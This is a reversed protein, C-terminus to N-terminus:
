VWYTEFPAINVFLNYDWVGGGWDVGRRTRYNSIVGCLIVRIYINPGWSQQLLQQAVICCQHQRLPQIMSADCNASSSLDVFRFPVFRCLMNRFVFVNWRQHGSNIFGHQGIAISRFGCWGSMFLTPVVALPFVFTASLLLSFCCSGFSMLSM